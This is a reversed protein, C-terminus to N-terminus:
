MKRLVVLYAMSEIPHYMFAHQRLDICWGCCVGFYASDSLHLATVIYSVKLQSLFLHTSSISILYGNAVASAIIKANDFDDDGGSPKPLGQPYITTLIPYRCMRSERLPTNCSQDFFLLAHSPNHKDRHAVATRWGSSQAVLFKRDEEAHRKRNDSMDPACSQLITLVATLSLLWDNRFPIWKCFSNYFSKILHVPDPVMSYHLEDQQNIDRAARAQTAESDSCITIIKIRENSKSEIRDVISKICQKVEEASSFKKAFQFVIPLRSSGDASTLFFQLATDVLHEDNAYQEIGHFLADDSTPYYLGRLHKGSLLDRQLSGEVRDGSSCYQLGKSLLCGDFALIAPIHKINKTALTQAREFQSIFLSILEDPIEDPEICHISKRILSRVGTHFLNPTRFIRTGDEALKPGSLNGSLFSIANRGFNARMTALFAAVESSQGTITSDRSIDGTEKRMYLLCTQYMLNHEEIQSLWRIVLDVFKVQREPVLYKSPKSFNEESPCPDYLGPSIGQPFRM